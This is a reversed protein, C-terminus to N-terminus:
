IEREVALHVAPDIRIGVNECGFHLADTLDARILEAGELDAERLDARPKIEYKGHKM